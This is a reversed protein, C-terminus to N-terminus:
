LYESPIEVGPGACQWMLSAIHWGDSDKIFQFSNVGQSYPKKSDVSVYAEFTSFRQAISGFIETKEFVEKEFSSILQGSKIVSTLSASFDDFTKINEQQGDHEIFRANELFLKRVGKFDPFQGQEFCLGDYLKKTITHIAKLDVNM